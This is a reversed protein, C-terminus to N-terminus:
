LPLPYMEFRAALERTTQSIDAEVAAKLEDNDKTELRGRPENELNMSQENTV